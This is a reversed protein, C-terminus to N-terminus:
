IFQCLIWTMVFRVVKIKRFKNGDTDDHPKTQKSAKPLIRVNSKLWESMNNQTFSVYIIGNKMVSLSDSLVIHSTEQTFLAYLVIRYGANKM